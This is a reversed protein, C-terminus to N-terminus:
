ENLKPSLGYSLCGGGELGNSGGIVICAITSNGTSTAGMGIGFYYCVGMGAGYTSWSDKSGGAVQKLEEQSMEGSTIKSLYAKFEDYTAYIGYEAAMPVLVKNFIDEETQDGTYAEAATKLKDQFEKDTLLLERFKEMNEM